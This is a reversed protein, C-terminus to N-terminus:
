GKGHKADDHTLFLWGMKEGVLDGTIKKCEELGQHWNGV